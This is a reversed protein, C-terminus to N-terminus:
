PKRYLTFTLAGSGTDSRVRAESEDSFWVIWVSTNGYPYEELFVTDVSTRYTYRSSVVPVGAFFAEATAMGNSFWYVTQPGMDRQWVGEIQQRADQPNFTDIVGDGCSAALLLLLSIAIAKTM